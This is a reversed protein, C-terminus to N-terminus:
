IIDYSIVESDSEDYITIKNDDVVVIRKDSSVINVSEDKGIHVTINVTTEAKHHVYPGDEIIM